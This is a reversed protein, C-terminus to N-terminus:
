ATAKRMPSEPCPRNSEGSRIIGPLGIFMEAPLPDFVHRTALYEEISEEGVMGVIKDCGGGMTKQGPFVCLM